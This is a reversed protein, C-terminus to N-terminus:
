AEPPGLAELEEPALFRLTPAALKAGWHGAWFRRDRGRLVVVACRAGAPYGAAICHARQWAGKAPQICGTTWGWLRAAPNALHPGPLENSAVPGAGVDAGLLSLIGRPLTNATLYSIQM